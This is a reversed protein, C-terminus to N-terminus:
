PLLSEQASKIEQEMRLLADLDEPLSFTSVPASVSLSLASVTTTTREAVLSALGTSNFATVPSALGSSLNVSYLNTSPAYNMGFLTGGSGFTLSDLYVGSGLNGVTAVTSADSASITFLDAGSVYLTGNSAFELSRISLSTTGVYTLVANSLDVTFIRAPSANEKVYLAGNPSFTANNMLIPSGGQYQLDGVKVTTGDAPNIIQLSTSVGYLQGDPGYALGPYFGSGGITTVAGTQGNVRVLTLYHSADDSGTWSLFNGTFGTTTTTYADTLATNFGAVPATYDQASANGLLDTYLVGTNFMAMQLAILMNYLTNGKTPTFATTIPNTVCLPTLGVLAACQKILVANVLASTILSLTSPDLGAFWMDPIATGALNALMLDTLPTVNM